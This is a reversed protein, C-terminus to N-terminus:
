NEEDREGMLELAASHRVRLAELEAKISPLLAVESRLKECEETMKLLEESLSDRISEMSALRSIYSALEGDKQRLALQFAHPTMSKIYYSVVTSERPSRESFDHSSDLSAQLFFSEEMSSLSGSSSLRCTLGNESPSMPKPTSGQRPPTSLQLHATKELELRAAKEHELDQQLFERQTLAEQLERKQKRKLQMMEEKLQSSHGKHTDAEEKLALFEQRSESLRQREKELSKTLQTQESRLSSIQAELVNIRSLTQSLRESVARDREEAAEAIAEADQLQINLSKEVEVWAQAKRATSEQMAEIQRLLHRTSEPVQIVLEECKRESAQCRKQLDNIDKRLMDERFVAQQEKRSITKRLEELTQVLVTEREEVEKLHSELETRAEDNARSDARAEAEKAATLANMYHEKQTALEADKKDTIEQLLKETAAKDRKLSEVKNEEIQARLKRITSEQVAQKKSLEEGEAMVQTIIEDKEKLLATADSRKNQERRLTDRERTLAYVKRELASVRQHYEERLSEIDAEYSKSKENIISKLHENENMLKAIEDAKAQAQRTAGLLAAEMTKMEKKVKEMYVTSDANDHLNSGLSPLHEKEFREDDCALQKVINVEANENDEKSVVDSLMESTDDSSTLLQSQGKEVSEPLTQSGLPKSEMEEDEHTTVKDKINPEHESKHLNFATQVDNIEPSTTEVQDASKEVADNVSPRTQSDAEAETYSDTIANAKNSTSICTEVPIEAMNEAENQFKTRIDTQGQMDTKTDMPKEAERKSASFTDSTSIIEADAVEKPHSLSEHKEYSDHKSEHKCSSVHKDSSELKKSSDVTGSGDKQGMFPMFEPSWANSDNANSVSGLANDFNKEINNKVSESIKNVAGALDPFSGLAVRGRLWAM